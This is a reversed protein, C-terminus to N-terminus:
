VRSYLNFTSGLELIQATTTISAFIPLLHSTTALSLEPHKLYVEKSLSVADSVINLSLGLDACTAAAALCMPLFSRGVLLIESPPAGSLLTRFGRSSFASPGDCQFVPEDPLPRVINVPAPQCHASFAHVIRWGQTRAEKLLLSANHICTRWSAQEESDRGTEVIDHLLLLPAEWYGQRGHFQANSLAFQRM